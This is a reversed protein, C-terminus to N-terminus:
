CYFIKIKRAYIYRHNKTKKTPNEGSLQSFSDHAHNHLPNKECFTFYNYIMSFWDKAIWMKKRLFRFFRLNNIRFIFFSRDVQGAFRRLVQGRWGLLDRFNQWISHRVRARFIVFNLFTFFFIILFNKSLFSKPM